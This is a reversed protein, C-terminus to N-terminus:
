ISEGSRCAPTTQKGKRVSDEDLICAMPYLGHGNGAGKKIIILRGDIKYEDNRSIQMKVPPMRDATAAVQEVECHGQKCTALKDGIVTREAHM